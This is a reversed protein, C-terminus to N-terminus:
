FAASAHQQRRRLALAELYFRAAREGYEDWGGMSRVRRLAARSMEDRLDPDKYLKLVRDRIADPDRIPVIFGEVGDSFLDAAGTNTTAVVPLGCAMAQGQVLALGEEISPMVFVSGQSYYQHLERRDIAGFYRFKGHYRALIPKVEPLLPGILWTEFKPLRLDAIAELLYRIGKRISMAGVYIVRFIDDNKRVPHFAELETGYPNKRLKAPPIGYEIFSRYAVDSPVFILDCNEYEALERDIIRQDTQVLATSHRDFEERMLEQQFLIHTSGRDCVTLAGFRRRAGRYALFGSGSLCHLVDCEGLKHSLWRDFSALISHEMRRASPVFRIKGMVMYPTTLWPFTSLKRQPLGKVKFRPYGTYLHELYGLREMQRALDFLHFRGQCGIAVRV